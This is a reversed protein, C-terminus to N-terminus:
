TKQNKKKKISRRGGRDVRVSVSRERMSARGIEGTGAEAAARGRYLRSITRGACPHLTRAPRGEADAGAGAVPRAAGGLKRLQRDAHRAPIGRSSHLLGGDSFRRRGAIPAGGWAPAM